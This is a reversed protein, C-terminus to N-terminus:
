GGPPSSGGPGGKVRPQVRAIGLEALFRDRDDAELELGRGVARGEEDVLLGAEAQVRRGGGALRDTGGLGRAPLERVDAVAGGVEERGDGQEGPQDVPDHPGPRARGLDELEPAQEVGQHRLALHDVPDEIRDPQV